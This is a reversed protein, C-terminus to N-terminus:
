AKDKDRFRPNELFSEIAAVATEIEQLGGFRFYKNADDLTISKEAFEVAAHAEAL